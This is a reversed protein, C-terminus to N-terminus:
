VGEFREQLGHFVPPHTVMQSEKKGQGRKARRSREVLNEGFYAGIEEGLLPVWPAKEKNNRVDDILAEVAEHEFLEYVGRSGAGLRRVANKELLGLILDMEAVSLGNGGSARLEAKKQVEDLEAFRVIREFVKSTSEDDFPTRLAALEFLFIGLKWFDTERGHSSALM